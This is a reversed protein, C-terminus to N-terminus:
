GLGGWKRCKTDDKIYEYHTSISVEFKTSLNDTAIPLGHITLRGQFPRPDTVHVM